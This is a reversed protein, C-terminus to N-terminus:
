NAKVDGSNWPHVLDVMPNPTYFPVAINVVQFDCAAAHMINVVPLVRLKLNTASDYSAEEVFCMPDNAVAVHMGVPALNENVISTGNWGSLDVTHTVFRPNSGLIASKSIALVEVHDYLSQSSLPFTFMNFTFVYANGSSGYRDYDAWLTSGANPSGS